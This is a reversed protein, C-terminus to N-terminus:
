SESEGKRLIDRAEESFFEYENGEADYLVAKEIPEIYEPDTHIREYWIELQMGTDKIPLFVQNTSTLDGERAYYYMFEKWPANEESLRLADQITLDKINAKIAEFLVQIIKENDEESIKYNVPLPGNKEQANYQRKHELINVYILTGAERKELNAMSVDYEGQSKSDIHWILGRENPNDWGYEPRLSISQLVKQVKKITEKDDILYRSCYKDELIEDSHEDESDYRFWILLQEVEQIEAKKLFCSYKRPWFLFLAACLVFGLLVALIGEVVLVWKKKKKM